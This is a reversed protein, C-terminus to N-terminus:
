SDQLSTANLEELTVEQQEVIEKLMKGSLAAWGFEVRLERIRRVYEQNAAVMLEDGLIIQPYRILYSLIRDRASNSDEGVIM